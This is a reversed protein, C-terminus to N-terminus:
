PIRLHTIPGEVGVERRLRAVAAKRRTVLSTAPPWPSLAM